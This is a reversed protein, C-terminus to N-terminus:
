RSAPRRLAFCSCEPRGRGLKKDHSFVGRGAKICPLCFSASDLFTGGNAQRPAREGNGNLGKKINQQRIKTGFRFHDLLIDHFHLITPFILSASSCSSWCSSRSPIPLLGLVLGVRERETSPRARQKENDTEGGGKKLFRFLDGSRRAAETIRAVRRKM